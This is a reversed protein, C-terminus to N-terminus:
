CGPAKQVNKWEADNVAAGVDPEGNVSTTGLAMTAPVKRAKRCTYGKLTWM